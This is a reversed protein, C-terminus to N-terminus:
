RMEFYKRRTSVPPLSRLHGKNGLLFGPHLFGAKERPECQLATGAVHRRRIFVGVRYGFIMPLGKIMGLKRLQITNSNTYPM